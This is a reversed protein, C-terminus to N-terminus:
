VPDGTASAAVLAPTVTSTTDQGFGAVPEDDLQRAPHDFAGVAPDLMTAADGAVVVDGEVSVFSEEEEAL